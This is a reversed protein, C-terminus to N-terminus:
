SALEVLTGFLLASAAVEELPRVLEWRGCGRSSCPVQGHRLRAEEGSFVLSTPVSSAHGTSSPAHCEVSYGHHHAVTFLLRHQPCHLLFTWILALPEVGAGLGPFLLAPEKLPRIVKGGGAHAVKRGLTPPGASSAPPPAPGVGPPHGSAHTTTTHPLLTRARPLSSRGSTTHTVLHPVGPPRTWLELSGKM